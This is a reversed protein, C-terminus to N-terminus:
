RRRLRRRQRWALFAHMLQTGFSLDGGGQVARTHVFPGDQGRNGAYDANSQGPLRKEPM